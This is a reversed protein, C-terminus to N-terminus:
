LFRPRVTLRVPLVTSEFDAQLQPPLLGYLLPRFPRRYRRREATFGQARGDLPM